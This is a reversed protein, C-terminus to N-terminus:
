QLPFVQPTKSNPSLTTEPGGEALCDSLPRLANPLAHPKPISLDPQSGKEAKSKDLSGFKSIDSLEKLKLKGM